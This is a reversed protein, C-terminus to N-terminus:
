RRGQVVWHPLPVPSFRQAVLGVFLRPDAKVLLRALEARETPSLNRRRGHARAILTMVRRREDPELKLWHKRALLGLEAMAVLSAMPSIRKAAKSTVKGAM